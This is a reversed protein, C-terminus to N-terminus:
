DPIQAALITIEACFAGFGVSNRAQVKFTYSRGKTLAVTTTYSTSSVSNVLEIWKGESQDYMITYDDIPEGGSNSPEQWTLGIRSANTIEPVNAFSEPADPVTVVQAGSGVPSFPSTGYVNTAAIKVDISDGLQLNFPAVYLTTL